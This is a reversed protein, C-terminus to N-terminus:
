LRRLRDDDPAADLERYRRENRGAGRAYVVAFFLILPYYGYAQLLWSLPVGFIVPDDLRAIVFVAATFAGAVLLFGLLCGVALRLQSRVLSRDFVAGAESVPSGPLAIGRTAGPAAAAGTVRVRARSAEGGHRSM